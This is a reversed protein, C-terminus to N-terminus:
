VLSELKAGCNMCFKDSESVPKGCSPCNRTAGPGEAPEAVGKIPAVGGLLEEMKEFTRRIDRSSQGYDILSIKVKPKGEITVTTEGDKERMEILLETGASFFNLGGTARINGSNKDKALTKMGLAEIARAAADFVELRNKKYVRTEKGGRLGM